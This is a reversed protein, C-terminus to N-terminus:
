LGMTQRQPLSSAGTKRASAFFSRAAKASPSSKAPNRWKTSHKSSRSPFIAPPAPSPPLTVPANPEPALDAIVRWKRLVAQQGLVESIAALVRPDAVGSWERHLNQLRQLNIRRGFKVLWDISEDMLRSDYRGFRTAALL